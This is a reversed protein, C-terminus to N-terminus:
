DVKDDQIFIDSSDGIIQFVTSGCDCNRRGIPRITGDTWVNVAYASNCSCCKAITRKREGDPM